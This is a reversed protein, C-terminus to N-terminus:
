GEGFGLVILLPAVPGPFAEQMAVQTRRLVVTPREELHGPGAAVESLYVMQEKQGDDNDM